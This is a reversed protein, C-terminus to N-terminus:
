THAEYPKKDGRLEPHFVRCRCTEASDDQYIAAYERASYGFERALEVIGDLGLSAANESMKTKFEDFRSVDYKEPMVLNGDYDTRSASYTVFLNQGSSCDEIEVFRHNDRWTDDPQSDGGENAVLGGGLDYPEGVGGHGGFAATCDSPSLFMGACASLAAFVPIIYIKRM